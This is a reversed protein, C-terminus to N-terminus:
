MVPQDHEMVTPRTPTHMTHGNQSHPYSYRPQKVRSWCPQRTVPTTGHKSNPGTCFYAPQSSQASMAAMTRDRLTLVILSVPTNVPMALATMASASWEAMVHMFKEWLLGKQATGASRCM